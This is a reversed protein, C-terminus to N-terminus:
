LINSAILGLRANICSTFAFHRRSISSRGRCKQMILGYYFRGGALSLSFRADFGLGLAWDDERDEFPALFRRYFTRAAATSVRGASSVGFVAAHQLSDHSDHPRSPSIEYIAQSMESVVATFYGERM